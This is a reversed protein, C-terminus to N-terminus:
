TNNPGLDLERALDRRGAKLLLRRVTCAALISADRDDHSVRGAADYAAAVLEGLSIRTGKRM